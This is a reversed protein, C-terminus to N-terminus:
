PMRRHDHARAELRRQDRSRRVPPPVRGAHVAARLPHVGDPRASRQVAPRRRGAAARLVLARLGADALLLRASPRVVLLLDARGASRDDDVLGLSWPILMGSWKSRSDPRPSTGSSSRPWCATSRSRRRCAPIRRAAVIPLERHDRRGVDVIGRHAADRRHLLASAGADASLLHLARHEARAPDDGRGHVSGAAALGSRM